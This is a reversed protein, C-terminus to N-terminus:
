SFSPQIKVAIYLAYALLFALAEGRGIRWGTVMVPLLVM